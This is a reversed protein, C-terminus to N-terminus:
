YVLEVMQHGTLKPLTFGMRNDSSHLKLAKKEPVMRAKKIEKDLFLSIELDHLPIVDEIVEFQEGRQEPIYHLLHLVYRKKHPQENITSIISSPGKIQVMPNVLMDDIANMVMAKVWLPANQYYQKFVPHSFYTVHNNQIVAPLGAEGSSPTQRHSCFHRYNRNFFSEINKLLVNGSGTANVDMGRIYMIHETEPLGKGIKGNPILYQAYHNRGYIKGRALDGEDDVPGDSVKRVGWEQLAFRNKEPDLGSEFTALVSGGNNLYNKIKSAYRDNLPIHDPLILLRYQDLDSQSDVIDFQKQGEQLMRTAGIMELPLKRATAGQFEESTVLGIETVPEVQECWPEKQEVQAYVSGILDYTAPDLKGNPYLQDGIGCKAGMALNTFTEYELAAKNKFSHFGGWSTHFKGTMGMVEKGLTRTFRATIPFNLYGWGGSPLSELEFHTYADATKRIYPGVHGSNYFVHTQKDLGHIFSTMDHKFDRIVEQYFARRQELNSPDLGKKLMGERSYKSSSDVWEMVIDLFVGDVEEVIEFMEAISEKLFDRYPSYVDLYRYFGDEYWGPGVPDGEPETMLWEPNHRATYHDWQVTVYIPVRIGNKHCAKIQEKLLDKNVLHPHVREPFLRSDYYMYGHHCRGFCTISNVHAKKLVSVFEGPDFDAGINEIFRSTHFDLHIQRFPFSSGSMFQNGAKQADAANLRFSPLAMLGLSGIASRKIFERRDIFTKM